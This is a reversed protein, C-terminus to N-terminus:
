HISRDCNLHEVDGVLDGFGGGGDAAPPVARGLGADDEAGAEAGEGVFDVGFRRDVVGVEGVEWSGSGDAM